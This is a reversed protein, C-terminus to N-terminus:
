SCRAVHLCASSGIQRFAQELEQGIRHFDMVSAERRAIVNIDVAPLWSRNLRFVERIYRKVKNRIVSNGVKKSVTVGLRPQKYVNPLWVLM